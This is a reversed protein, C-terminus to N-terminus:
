ILDLSLFSLCPSCGPAPGKKKKTTWFLPPVLKKKQTRSEISSAERGVREAGGGARRPLQPGLVRAIAETQVPATSNALAEWGVFFAAPRWETRRLMPTGEGGKGGVEVETRAM